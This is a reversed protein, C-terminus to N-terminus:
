KRSCLISHSMISGDAISELCYQPQRTQQIKETTPTLHETSISEIKADTLLNMLDILHCAEGVIRGGHEHTWHNLPIYGANMRYHM